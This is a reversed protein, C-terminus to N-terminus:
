VGVLRPGARAPLAGVPHRQGHREGLTHREEGGGEERFVLMNGTLVFSCVTFGIRNANFLDHPFTKGVHLGVLSPLVTRGAPHAWTGRVAVNRGCTWKRSHGGPSPRGPGPVRKGGVRVRVCVRPTPHLQGLGRFSVLFTPTTAMLHGSRPQGLDANLDLLIHFYKFLLIRVPSFALRWVAPATLLSQRGSWRSSASRGRHSDAPPRWRRLPSRTWPSM